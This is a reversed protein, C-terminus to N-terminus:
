QNSAIGTLKPTLEPERLAAGFQLRAEGSRCTCIALHDPLLHRSTDFFSM